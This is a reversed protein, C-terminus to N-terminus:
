ASIRVVASPNQLRGLRMASSSLHRYGDLVPAGAFGAAAAFRLFSNLFLRSRRTMGCPITCMAADNLLVCIVMASVSPRTTQQDEAPAM